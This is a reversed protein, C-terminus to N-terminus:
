KLYICLEESLIFPLYLFDAKFTFGPPFQREGSMFGEGMEEVERHNSHHSLQEVLFLQLPPHVLRYTSM